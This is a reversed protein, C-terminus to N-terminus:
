FLQVGLKDMIRFQVFVLLLIGSMIALCLIVLIPIDEPKKEKKGDLLKQWEVGLAFINNAEADTSFPKDLVEDSFVPLVYPEGYRWKYMTTKTNADLDRHKAKITPNQLGSNDEKKWVELKDAGAETYLTYYHSEVMKNPMEVFVLAMNKYFLNHAVSDLFRNARPMKLIM